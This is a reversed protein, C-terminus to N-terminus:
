AVYTKAYALMKTNFLSFTVATPEFCSVEYIFTVSILCRCDVLQVSRLPIFIVYTYGINAFLRWTFLAFKLRTKGFSCMSCKDQKHMSANLSQRCVNIWWPPQIGWFLFSCYFLCVSGASWVTGDSCVKDIVFNYAYENTMVYVTLWFFLGTTTTSNIWSQPRLVLYCLFATCHFICFFMCYMFM